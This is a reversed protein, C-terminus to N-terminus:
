LSLPLILNQIIIIVFGIITIIVIGNSIIGYCCCYHQEAFLNINVIIVGILAAIVYIFIVTIIGNVM